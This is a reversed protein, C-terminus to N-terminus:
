NDRAKGVSVKSKINFKLSKAVENWSKINERNIGLNNKEAYEVIAKSEKAYKVVARYDIYEKGNKNEKIVALESANFVEDYFEKSGRIHKKGKCRHKDKEEYLKVKNKEERLLNELLKIQKRLNQNTAQLKKIYNKLEDYSNSPLIEENIYSNNKDFLTAKFLEIYTDKMRDNKLIEKIANEEKTLLSCFEENLKLSSIEYIKNIIEKKSKDEIWTM